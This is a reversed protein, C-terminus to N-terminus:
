LCARCMAIQSCHSPICALRTAFVSSASASTAMSPRLAICAHAALLLACRLRFPVFSFSLVELVALFVLDAGRLLAAVLALVTRACHRLGKFGFSAIDLTGRQKTCGIACFQAAGLAWM